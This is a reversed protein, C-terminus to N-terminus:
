SSVRCCIMVSIGRWHIRPWRAAKPAPCFRRCIPLASGPWSSVKCSPKSRPFNAARPRLAHTPTVSGAYRTALGHSEVFPGMLVVSSNNGTDVMFRGPIGDVAGEVEPTKQTFMLPVATGHGDPAFWALPTLTLEEHAYDLRVAFRKFLEYGLFGAIPPLTGRHEVADPLPLM